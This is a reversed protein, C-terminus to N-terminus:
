FHSIRIGLVVLYRGMHEAQERLLELDRPYIAPQTILYAELKRLREALQDREQIVRLQWDTLLETRPM